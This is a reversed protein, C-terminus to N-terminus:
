TAITSWVQTRRTLIQVPAGAISFDEYNEETGGTLHSAVDILAHVSGEWDKRIWWKTM